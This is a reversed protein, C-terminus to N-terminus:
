SEIGQEWRLAQAVREHLTALDGNNRITYDVKLFQQNRESSHDDQLGVGPREVRWLSGGQSHIYWDENPFRVDSIVIDKDVDLDEVEVDLLNVWTDLGIINRGVETGMAKLLQRVEPYTRKAKDWGIENVIDQLRRFTPIRYDVCIWPNLEWVSQYVPTAFTLKTFGYREVLIDATADKGSSKYGSIGILM